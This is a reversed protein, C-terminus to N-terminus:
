VAASCGTVRSGEGVLALRARAVANGYIRAETTFVIIAIAMENRACNVVIAECRSHAIRGIASNTDDSVRSGTNKYRSFDDNSALSFSFNGSITKPDRSM